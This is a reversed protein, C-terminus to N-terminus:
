IKGRISTFVISEKDKSFTQVLRKHTNFREKLLEKIIIVNDIKAEDDVKRDMGVGLGVEHLLCNQQNLIVKVLYYMKNVEKKTLTKM